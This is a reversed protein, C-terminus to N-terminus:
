EDSDEEQPQAAGAAGPQLFDPLRPERGILDAFAHEIAAEDGRMVGELAGLAADALAATDADIVERACDLHTMLWAGALQPGTLLLDVWREDGHRDRCLARMEGAQIVQMPVGVCM